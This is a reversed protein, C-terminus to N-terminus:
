ELVDNEVRDLKGFFILDGMNNNGALQVTKRCIYMNLVIADTEVFFIRVANELKELTKVAFMLVLPATYGERDTLLDDLLMAALDARVALRTFAGSEGHRQRDILVETEM